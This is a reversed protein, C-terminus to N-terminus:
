LPTPVSRGATVGVVGVAYPKVLVWSGNFEWRIPFFLARGVGYIPCRALGVLQDGYGDTTWAYDSQHASRVYIVRNTTTCNM